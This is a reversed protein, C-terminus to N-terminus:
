FNLNLTYSYITPCVSTTQKDSSSYGTVSYSNQSRDLTTEDHTRTAIPYPAPTHCPKACKTRINVYNSPTQIHM